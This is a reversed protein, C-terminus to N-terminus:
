KVYITDIKKLKNLQIVVKKILSKTLIGNVKKQQLYKKLSDERFIYLYLMSTDNQDGFKYSLVGIDQFKGPELFINMNVKDNYLDDDTLTDNVLSAGSILCTSNNKVALVPTNQDCSMIMTSFVAYIICKSLNIKM